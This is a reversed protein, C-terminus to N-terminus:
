FIITREDGVAYLFEPKGTEEKIGTCIRNRGKIGLEVDTKTEKAHTILGTLISTVKEELIKDNAKNIQLEKLEEPDIEITEAREALLIGRKEQPLRRESLTLTRKARRLKEKKLAEELAEPKLAEEIAEDMDERLKILEEGTLYLAGMSATISHDVPQELPNNDFDVTLRVSHSQFSDVLSQLVANKDEGFAIPIMGKFEEGGWRGLISGRKLGESVTARNGTPTEELFGTTESLVKDGGHYGFKTNVDKFKDFDILVMWVGKPILNEEEAGEALGTQSEVFTRRGDGRPKRESTFHRATKGEEIAAKTEPMRLWGAYDRIMQVTLDRRPLGTLRDKQAGELKRKLRDVREEQTVTEQVMTEAQICFDVYRDFLEKLTEKESAREKSEKETSIPPNIGGLGHKLVEAVKEEYHNQLAELIGQKDLIATFAEQLHHLGDEPIVGRHLFILFVQKLDEILHYKVSPFCFSYRSLEKELEEFFAFIEGKIFHDGKENKLEIIDSWNAVIKGWIDRLQNEPSLCRGELEPILGLLKEKFSQWEAGVETKTAM